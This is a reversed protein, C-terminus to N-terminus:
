DLVTWEAPEGDSPTTLDRWEEGSRMRPKGNIVTRFRFVSGDAHLYVIHRINSHSFRSRTWRTEARLSTVGEADMADALNTRWKIAAQQREVIANDLNDANFWSYHIGFRMPKGVKQKAADARLSVPTIKTM